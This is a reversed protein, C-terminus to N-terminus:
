VDIGLGRQVLMYLTDYKICVTNDDAPDDEALSESIERMVNDAIQSLTLEGRHKREMLSAAQDILENLHRNENSLRDLEDKMWPASAVLEANAKGIENVDTDDHFMQCIEIHPQAVQYVVYDWSGRRTTAAWPGPTHKDSM